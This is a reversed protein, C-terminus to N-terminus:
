MRKSQIFKLCGFMIPLYIFSQGIWDGSSELRWMDNQSWYSWGDKPVRKQMVCSTPCGDMHPVPGQTPPIAGGM